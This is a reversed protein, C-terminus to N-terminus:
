SSTEELGGVQYFTVILPEGELMTLGQDRTKEDATARYTPEVDTHQITIEPINPDM